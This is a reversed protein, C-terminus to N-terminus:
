ATGTETAAALTDYVRECREVVADRAFLRLATSHGKEGAAAASDRNRCYDVISDTMSKFDGAPVVRGAGGSQIELIERASCVDFSVVPRACSMGEIMARVLGEYRSSVAIVSARRMLDGVDTRYGLFQVADGLPAAAEACAAMYPDRGADFDGSLWTAIGEAALKPSVNRIFDLQGKKPSILGSLLVVPPGDGSYPPSPAFIDPDVISYTVSCSDAANSAVASWRDAMDQSLYFVHDAAGFLIRYRARPPLRAPDLTDRVNLAIKARRGLKVAPLSVQFAAADNAHVVRAGSAKLLRPLAVAYRLYSRMAELPNRSIGLSVSQPLIHTEIGSRRWQEVRSSHRDTVIIPRHRRLGTIIQSISSVGGDAAANTQVLVFIVAPLSM